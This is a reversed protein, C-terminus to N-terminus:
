QVLAPEDSHEGPCRYAREGCARLLGLPNAADTYQVSKGLVIGDIPFSDRGKQTCQFM